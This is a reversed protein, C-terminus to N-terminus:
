GAQGNVVKKRAMREDEMAIAHRGKRGEAQEGAEDRRMGGKPASM